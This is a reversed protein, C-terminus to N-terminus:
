DLVERVKAALRNISFPKEIFNVREDLVTHHAIVNAMHGSMFLVKTEPFLGNLQDAFERGNMEPMVVDTLLLDIKGDHAKALELAESPSNSTIVNYGLRGLMIRTLNLVVTEDELVLITEGRGKLLIDKKKGQEEIDAEELLRPFYIRVTTGQGPESYVNIFGNNQKVIGYVTPMGLGTGKGVEKTTFFPEFLNDLVHKDMGCGNDSVALMVYQGPVFGVHDACYQKDFEINETEIVIKGNGTIADCCNVVINSLIQEIQSFDMKILWANQCPKWLLDINEGILLHLMKLMGSVSDNLNMSVPAITQKRAFALLKRVMVASRKGADQIEQVSDYMPDSSPLVEAMMEAYGNIITLMNNIDHAVGGALRGVSEMKQAQNLQAQLKEQEKEAQKRETIDCLQEIIYVVNGDQDLIPNSRCILHQGLEPVYKELEAPKKTKLADRTACLDCESERGILQYCKRNKIAEPSLGIANYGAQNYREITHDPKQIALIDPIGNIIGELLINNQVLADEAQKRETIDRCIGQVRVPNNNEDFVLKSKDSVWAISGDPRLIRCQRKAAGTERLQEFAQRTLHQDEPHVVEQLLTPNKNFDRLPRGYIEETAPSLYILELDPWTLSWVGDSIGKLIDNTHELGGRLQENELEAEIQKVQLEHFQQQIEERSMTDLDPFPITKAKKEAQERLQAPDLFSINNSGPSPNNKNQETM